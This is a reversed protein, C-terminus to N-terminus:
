KNEESGDDDFLGDFEDVHLHPAGCYCCSRDEHCKRCHVGGTGDVPCVTDRM